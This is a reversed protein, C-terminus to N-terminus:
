ESAGSSKRDGKGVGRKLDMYFSGGAGERSKQDGEQLLERRLCKSSQNKGREKNEVKAEDM